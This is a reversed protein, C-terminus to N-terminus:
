DNRDKDSDIVKGSEADIEYDYEYGNAYFDVEYKYRGDDIDLNSKLFKAEAKSVGAHDLAIEEARSASIKGKQSQQPESNQVLNQPKSDSTRETAPVPTTSQKTTSAVSSQSTSDGMTSSETEMFEDIMSSEMEVMNTTSQLSEDPVNKCGVLLVAVFTAVLLLKIKM